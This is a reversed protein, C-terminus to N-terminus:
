VEWCLHHGPDVQCHRYAVPLATLAQRHKKYGSSLQSRTDQLVAQKTCPFASGADLASHWAVNMLLPLM